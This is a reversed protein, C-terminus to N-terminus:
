RRGRGCAREHSKLGALSACIRGCRLCVHDGVQPRAHRRARRDAALTEYQNVYATFGEDCLARYGDRDLAEVEVSSPAINSKKLSSKIYDKYRKKQGGRSRNGESLESYLVQRPLRDPSMRMLHGVWRLQRRLLLAELPVTATRRRIETHPVRDWWRLGLIKQLCNTYFNELRRLQARYPTWAECGYLLISVCIANFVSVKTKITLDHNTFVRKSLRGFASSACGIRRHIEPTLDVTNTLKSGLYVFDSANVLDRGDVTLNVPNQGMGTCQKMAETKDTNIVLGAGSYADQVANLCSQLGETTHSVLVADDAYQLDVVSVPSTRTRAQLRRLNFLGGDYRFQIPVGHEAPDIRIYVLKMISALFINFLIPALVCGQKVGVGVPFSDSHEGACRVTANMGDHFARLIAIFKPPCGVKLMVGWLLERNVTDFAKTLDIFAAYLDRHQERCKEQLQRMVFLASLSM